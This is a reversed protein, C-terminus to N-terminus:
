KGCDVLSRSVLSSRYEFCKGSALNGLEVDLIQIGGNSDIMM